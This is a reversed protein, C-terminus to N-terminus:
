AQHNGKEKSREGWNKTTITLKSDLHLMLKKVMALYSPGWSLQQNQISLPLSKFSSKLNSQKTVSDGGFDKPFTRLNAWSSEYEGTYAVILRCSSGKVQGEKASTWDHNERKKEELQIFSIDTINHSDLAEHSKRNDSM